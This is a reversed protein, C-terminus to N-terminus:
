DSIAYKSFHDIEFVVDGQEVGEVDLLVWSKYYPNFYFFKAYGAKYDLEAMEFTLKAPIKFELGDPGFEFVIAKNGWIKDEYSKVSIAVNEDVAGPDVEFIHEYEERTITIEGGDDKSILESTQTIVADGGDWGDYHFSRHPSATATPSQQPEIGGSNVSLNDSCGIVFILSVAAAIFGIKSFVRLKQIM